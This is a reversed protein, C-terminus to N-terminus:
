MPFRYARDLTEPASHTYDMRQEHMQVDRKEEHGEHGHVSPEQAAQGRAHELVADVPESARVCPRAHDRDGDRHHRGHNRGTWPKPPM